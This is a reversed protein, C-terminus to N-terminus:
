LPEATVTYVGMGYYTTFNSQWLRFLERGALIPYERGFHQFFGMSFDFDIEKGLECYPPTGYYAFGTVYQICGDLNIAIEVPHFGGGQPSYNPDRFSLVAGTDPAPSLDTLEKELLCILKKSIPWPLSDTNIHM